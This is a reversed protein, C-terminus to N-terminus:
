IAFSPLRLRERLKRTTIARVTRRAVRAELERGRLEARAERELRAAEEAPLTKYIKNILGKEIDDLDNQVRAPSGTEDKEALKRVAAAADRIAARARADAAGGAAEELAAALAALKEGLSKEGPRGEGPSQAGARSRRREEEVAWRCQRLSRIEGGRRFAEDIGRIAAAADVGAREWDALCALDAPSLMTGRGRRAVFHEAVAAVFDAGKAAAKM